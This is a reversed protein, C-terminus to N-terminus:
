RVRRTPSHARPELPISRRRNLSVAGNEFLAKGSTLFRAIDRREFPVLPSEDVGFQARRAPSTRQRASRDTWPAELM